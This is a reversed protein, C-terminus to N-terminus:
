QDGSKKKFRIFKVLYLIYAIFIVLNSIFIQTTSINGFKISIIVWSIIVLFLFSCVWINFFNKM